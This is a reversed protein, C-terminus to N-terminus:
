AIAEQELALRLEVIGSSFVRTDLQEFGEGPSEYYGDLSVMMSFLVRRM